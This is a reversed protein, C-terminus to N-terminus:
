QSVNTLADPIDAKRRFASMSLAFRQERRRDIKHLQDQISNPRRDEEAHACRGLTVAQAAM